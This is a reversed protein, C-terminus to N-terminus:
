LGHQTHVRSYERVCALIAYTIVAGSASNRGYNAGGVDKGRGGRRVTADLIAGRADWVSGCQESRLERVNQACEIPLERASVVESIVWVPVWPACLEFFVSLSERESVGRLRGAYNNARM